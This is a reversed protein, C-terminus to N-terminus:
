AAAEDNPKTRADDTGHPKPAGGEERDGLDESDGQHKKTSKLRSIEEELQRVTRRLDGVEAETALAMAKALQGLRERAFSQVKGPVSLAGVLAKMIREDQMVKMVREDTLLRVGQEQLIKKWTSMAQWTSM